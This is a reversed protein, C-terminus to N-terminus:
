CFRCARSRQCSLSDDWIQRRYRSTVPELLGVLDLKEVVLELHIGSFDEITKTAYESPVSELYLRILTELDESVQSAASAIRTADEATIDLPLMGIKRATTIRSQVDDFNGKTCIGLGELVYGWGRLTPSFTMNDREALIADVLPKLIKRTTAETSARGRPFEQFYDIQSAITALTTGSGDFSDIVPTSLGSVKATGYTQAAM